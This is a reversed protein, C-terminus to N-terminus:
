FRALDERDMATRCRNGFSILADICKEKDNTCSLNFQGRLEKSFGEVDLNSMGSLWFMYRVLVNFVQTEAKVYYTTVYVTVPYRFESIVPLAYGYIGHWGDDMTIVTTRAPLVDRALHDLASELSMVPFNLKALYRMRKRFNEPQM